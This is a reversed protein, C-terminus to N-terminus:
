VVGTKHLTVLHNRAIEWRDEYSLDQQVEAIVGTDCLIEEARRLHLVSIQEELSLYLYYASVKLMEIARDGRVIERGSKLTRNHDLYRRARAWNRLRDLRSIRQYSLSPYEDIISSGYERELLWRIAIQMYKQTDVWLARANTLCLTEPQLFRFNYALKVDERLERRGFPAEYDEINIIMRGIDDSSSCERNIAQQFLIGLRLLTKSTRHSLESMNVETRESFHQWGLEEISLLCENFIPFFLDKTQLSYNSSIPLSWRVDKGSIIRTKYKVEYLDMSKPLFLFKILPIVRIQIRIRALESLSEIENVLQSPLTSRRKTVLVLDLDSKVSLGENSEKWVGRGSALSGALLISLCEYSLVGHIVGLVQNLLSHVVEDCKSCEFVYKQSM